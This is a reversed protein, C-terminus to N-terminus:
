LEPLNEIKNIKFPSNDLWAGAPVYIREYEKSFLKHTLLHLSMGNEYPEKVILDNPTAIKYINKIQAYNAIDYSYVLTKKFSPATLRRYETFARRYQCWQSFYETAIKKESKGNLIDHKIVELDTRHGQRPREGMEYYDGEDMCYAYAKVNERAKQPESHLNRGFREIIMKEFVSKTVKERYYIYCQLHLTKKRPAIEFGIIQYTCDTDEEYMAMAASIDDDTWNNVTYCYGRSRIKSPKKGSM